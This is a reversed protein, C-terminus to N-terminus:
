EREEDMGAGGQHIQVKKAATEGIVMLRFFLTTAHKYAGGARDAVNSSSVECWCLRNPVLYILDYRKWKRRRETRRQLLLPPSISGFIHSLFSPFFFRFGAQSNIELRDSCGPFSFRMLMYNHGGPISPTGECNNGWPVGQQKPASTLAHTAGETFPRTLTSATITHTTTTTHRTQNPQNKPSNILPHHM